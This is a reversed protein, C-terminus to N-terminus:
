RRDKWRKLLHCDTWVGDLVQGHPLVQELQSPLLNAAHVERLFMGRTTASRIHELVARYLSTNHVCWAIRGLRGDICGDNILLLELPDFVSGNWRPEFQKKRKSVYCLCVLEGMQSEFHERNRSRDLELVRRDARTELYVNAADTRMNLNQEMTIQDTSDTAETNWVPRSHAFM